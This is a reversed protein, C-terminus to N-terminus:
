SSILFLVESFIVMGRTVRVYHGKNIIHKVNESGYVKNEVLISDIRTDELYKGRCAIVVKETHFGGLGLFINGFLAPDLFELEKTLRYM